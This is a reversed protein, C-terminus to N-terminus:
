AGQQKMGDPPMVPKRFPTVSPMPQPGEKELRAQEEEITADGLLEAGQLLKLHTEMSIQGKERMSSWVTLIDAGVEAEDWDMDLSVSGGSSERLWQGMLKLTQELFDQFSWVWARLKSSADRTDTESESATKVKSDLAQGAVRRMRDEIAAIDREGAEIAAGQIEVYKLGVFGTILGKVGIEIPATPDQRNDEDAALLPVRAVNLISRQYSASQWHTVNLWALAELPPEGMCWGDPDPVYCTMMVDPMSVPGSLDPLLTWEARDGIQGTKEWVEVIGPELVRIRQKEVTGWRGSPVKICERYRFHTCRHTGDELVEGRCDLVNSLPVHVLYPRAGLAREQGLTLGAPVKHYDVVVFTLADRLATRLIPRMFSDFDNGQLDVNELCAEVTAPADTVVIPSGLPKGVYADLATSYAPFFDAEDRRSEWDKDAERPRKPLYTKAQRRMELVGGTLSQCVAARAQMAAIPPSVDDIKPEESM